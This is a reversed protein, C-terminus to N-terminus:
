DMRTYTAEKKFYGLGYYVSVATGKKWNISENGSMIKNKSYSVQGTLVNSYPSEEKLKVLIEQGEENQLVVSISESLNPDFNIPAELRITLTNKEEKTLDIKTYHNALYAMSMNFATNFQVWGETWGLNGVEPNNPFHFSKPSGDFVFKVEELLGIGGKHADYWGLDVGEIEQPGKYSFHRGVPNRGFANDFHSWSLVELRQILETDDLISMAAFLSAPFGLVNGTENWSPPV